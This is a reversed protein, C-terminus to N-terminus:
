IGRQAPGSSKKKKRFNIVEKKEWTEVAVVGM